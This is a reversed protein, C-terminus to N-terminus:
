IWLAANAQVQCYTLTVLLYYEYAVDHQKMCCPINRFCTGAAPEIVLVHPKYLLCSVFLLGVNVYFCKYISIIRKHKTMMQHVM